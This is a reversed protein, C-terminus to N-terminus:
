PLVHVAGGTQVAFLLLVTLLVTDVAMQAVQRCLSAAKGAWSVSVTTSQLSWSIVHVATDEALVACVRARGGM